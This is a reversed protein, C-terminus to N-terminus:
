RANRKRYEKSAKKLKTIQRFAVEVKEGNEMIVNKGIEEIYKMNVIFAKHVRFFDGTNLISEWDNMSTTSEYYCKKTRILTCRKENDYEIYIIDKLKLFVTSGGKVLIARSNKTIDKIAEALVKIFDDEKVPKLLYRFAKVRYGEQMFGKFGTLFIITMSDDKERIIEATKMGNTGKMQIDLFLIDIPDQYKLLEDGSKFWAIEFDILNMEKFKRCLGIVEERLIDEDDCVGVKM